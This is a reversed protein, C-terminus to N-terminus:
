LKLAWTESVLGKGFEHNPEQGVLKFGAKAYIHRAPDLISQTWLVIERYGARRAFRICEEVLRQGVGCGRASPEVLLLRLKAVTKSKAVLFISGVRQGDLEAIWARERRPDHDAMFKVVIEAVLAEFGEGWGWERDYVEGHRHIVWGMDGPRPARIRCSRRARGGGDREGLVGEITRMASVLRDQDAGSLPAILGRVEDASGADLKAFMERGRPTLRLLSQRGDTKSPRRALLGRRAFASLIRSLYGADLGLEQGLATATPQERHALEYLVRAQTLSFPSDLLGERLVGIRRTYDRNFHRVAEVRGDLARDRPLPM